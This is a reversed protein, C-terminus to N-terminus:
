PSMGNHKNVSYAPFTAGCKWCGGCCGCVCLCVLVVVGGGGVVVVVVVILVVVVDGVIVGSVEVGFVGPTTSRSLCSL